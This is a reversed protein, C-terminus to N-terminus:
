RRADPTATRPRGYRKSLLRLNVANIGAHAVVPALLNGTVDYLGGLVGGALLAFGTWPLLARSPAVHALGFLLSAWLWGVRPQLAGRFFAEEAFGSLAALWLAGPWSLPGLARGLERALAEGWSTRTTVLHSLVIVAAATAVGLAGDRGWRVGAAEASRDLFAWPTGAWGNWALAVLALLGYFLSAWRLLRGRGAPRVRAEM